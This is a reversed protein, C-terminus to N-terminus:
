SLSLMFSGGAFLVVGGIVIMAIAKPYNSKGAIFVTAPRDFNVLIEHESHLAFNNELSATQTEGRLVEGGPSTFEFLLRFKEAPTSQLHPLVEDIEVVKGVVLDADQSLRINKYILKIGAWIYGMPLLVFLVFILAILWVPQEKM